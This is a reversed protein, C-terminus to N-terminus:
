SVTMRQFRREYSFWLVTSQVFGGLLILVLALLWLGRAFDQQSAATLSGWTFLTFLVAWPVAFAFVGWLVIFRRAGKARAVRWRVLWSSDRSSRWALYPKRVAELM